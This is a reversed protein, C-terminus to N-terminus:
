QKREDVEMVWKIIGPYYEDQADWMSLHGGNPCYLYSGNQVLKSMQEMEEPNMTDYKAGIMLVPLTLNKLRTWCEWGVLRGGPVFESPGQLIDYVPFNLHKFSRLVPEPWDAAKKRLIHKCYYEDFVLQQYVPNLFDGKQEFSELSDILSPRMQARLKQNYAGYKAYDATMNSIILGKLHQQYKLAYEMGVIGGWSNGLIYFNSSDLQLAQRVQEVEEVFRELTWLSSDTPQDSYFSGLQDYHYFEFGEKAFFADFCEMYEHTLAPGGHLLLIKIRPNNGTKKTWVKFKGKPTQVEVMKVGANELDQKSYNFYGNEAVPQPRNCGMWLLALLGVFLNKM